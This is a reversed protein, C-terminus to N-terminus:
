LSRRIEYRAVHDGSLGKFGEVTKLVNKYASLRKRDSRVSLGLLRSAAHDAYGAVGKMGYTLGWLAGAFATTLGREQRMTVIANRQMIASVVAKNKMEERWGQGSMTDHVVPFTSFVIRAGRARAESFFAKDERGTKNFRPDFRLGLGEEGDVLWRKFSVNTTGMTPCFEGHAFRRGHEPGGKRGHIAGGAVDCGFAEHSRLHGLLWDPDPTMDDDVFALLEAPTKLALALAKNRANSYGTEPEHGYSAPFPLGQLLEAIYSAHHSDPNNDAVVVHLTVEPPVTVQSLSTLFNALLAPRQYSCVMLAVSAFGSESPDSPHQTM